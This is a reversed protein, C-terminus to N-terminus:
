AAYEYLEWAPKYLHIDDASIVGTIVDELDTHDVLSDLLAPDGNSLIHIDYGSDHITELGGRVDEFVDLDHYVSLVEEIEDDTLVVDFVDLAYKLALRHRDLAPRSVTIENGVIAYERTRLQWVRALATAEPTHAELAKRSSEVDVLTSYSDVVVSEIRSPDIGM